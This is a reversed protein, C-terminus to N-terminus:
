EPRSGLQRELQSWAGYRHALLEPTLTALGNRFEYAALENPDHFYRLWLCPGHLADIELRDIRFGLTLKAIIAPNNGPAHNSVVSAFGLERTTALVREILSRYIGRRRFDPHVSAHSTAYTHGDVQEGRYVAVVREGERVLWRDVLPEGGRADALRQAQREREPSRAFYLEPPFGERGFAAEWAAWYAADEAVQEIRYGGPLPAVARELVAQAWDWGASV